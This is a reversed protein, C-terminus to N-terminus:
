RKNSLGILYDSSTNFFQALLFLVEVSCARIGNEMHTIATRNVGVAEALAAQSVGSAKRLVSLREAFIKKSFM